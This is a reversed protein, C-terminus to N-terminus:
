DSADRPKEEARKEAAQYIKALRLMLPELEADYAEGSLEDKRTRLQDLQDEIASREKLESATLPLRLGAPSLTVRLAIAGDLQAGDKATAAPRTGQFMSAPTGKGDGNDDLLAHETAIRAETEYFQRVEASARLFAEHVSVEDDHDLDSEPSAIARSFYEGFRAYNQETGSKTATVVIRNAKSLRNV